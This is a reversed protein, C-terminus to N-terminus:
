PTTRGPKSRRRDIIEQVKDAIAARMARMRESRQRSALLMPLTICNSRKGHAWWAASKDVIKHRFGNVGM